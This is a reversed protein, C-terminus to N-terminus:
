LACDEALWVEGFTGAGLLRLIRYGDPPSPITRDGPTPEDPGLFGPSDDEAHAHAASRLSRPMADPVEFWSLASRIEDSADRLSGEVADHCRRCRQLHEDVDRATAVDLREDLFASVEAETPCAPAAM